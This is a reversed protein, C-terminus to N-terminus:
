WLSEIKHERGGRNEKIRQYLFEWKNMFSNSTRLHLSAPASSPFISVKLPLMSSPESCLSFGSSRLTDPDALVLQTDQLLEKIWLFNRTTGRNRWRYFPSLFLIQKISKNEPNFSNINTFCMAPHKTCLTIYLNIFLLHELDNFHVIFFYSM